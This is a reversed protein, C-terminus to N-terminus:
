HENLMAVELKLIVNFMKRELLAVISVDHIV